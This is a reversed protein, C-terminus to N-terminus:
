LVLNARQPRDANRSSWQRRGPFNTYLQM